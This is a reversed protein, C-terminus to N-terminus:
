CSSNAYVVNNLFFSKLRRPRTVYGGGTKGGAINYDLHLTTELDEEAGTNEGGTRM